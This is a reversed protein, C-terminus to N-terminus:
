RVRRKDAATPGHSVIELPVDLVDSVFAPLEEWQVREYLPKATLLMKGIQEQRALDVNGPHIGAVLTSTTITDSGNKYATCVSAGEEPLRDLHTLVLGTIQHAVEVAYRGLVLDLDGVRLDEQWPTPVNHDNKAISKASARETPFPGAGHRTSFSRLVGLYEVKGRGNADGLLTDANDFTCTSWTTHPHFGWNEDLLVGQAGEFVIHGPANLEKQLWLQNVIQVSDAFNGFWDLCNSLTYMDELVLLERQVAPNSRDLDLKEAEARYREQQAQLPRLIATGMDTKLMCATISDKERLSTEMTEGIGMGCSGHRGDGRALEKLRNMAVQFPTTILCDRDLVLLSFPDRVGISELHRAEAFAFIPNVMMFRSLFTRAGAFTGAGWQSFCHHRGDALIVNHGAQAGGSFRVVLKSNNERCLFDVTTGKGEDGFGLGVVASADAM